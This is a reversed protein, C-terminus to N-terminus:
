SAAQGRNIMFDGLRKSGLSSCKKYRTWIVKENSSNKQWYTRQDAHQKKLRIAIKASIKVLCLFSPQVGVQRQCTPFLSCKSITLLSQCVHFFASAVWVTVFITFFFCLNRLSETLTFFGFVFESINAYTQLTRYNDPHWFFLLIVTNIM